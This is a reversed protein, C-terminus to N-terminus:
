RKGKSKYNGLSCSSGRFDDSLELICKILIGNKYFYYYQDMLCYNHQLKLLNIVSDFISGFFLAMQFIKDFYWFNTCSFDHSLRVM